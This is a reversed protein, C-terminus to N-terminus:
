NHSCAKLMFWEAMEKRCGNEKCDCLVTNLTMVTTIGLKCPINASDGGELRANGWSGALVPVWSTEWRCPVCVSGSLIHQAISGSLVMM